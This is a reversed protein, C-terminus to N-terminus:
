IDVKRCKFDIDFQAVEASVRGGEGEVQAPAGGAVPLPLNLGALYWASRQVRVNPLGCKVRKGLLDGDTLNIWQRRTRRWSTQLEVRADLAPNGREVEQCSIFVVQLILPTM